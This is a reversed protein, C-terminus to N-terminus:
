EPCLVVATADDFFRSGCHADVARLMEDLIEQASRAQSSGLHQALREESFQDGASNEAESLWRHIAIAPRWRGAIGDSGPVRFM